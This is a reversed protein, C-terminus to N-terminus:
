FLGGGGTEDRYWFTYRRSSRWRVDNANAGLTTVWSFFSSLESNRHATVWSASRETSGSRNMRLVVRWRGQRVSSLSHAWTDSRAIWERRGGLWDSNTGHGAGICSERVSCKVPRAVPYDLIQSGYGTAVALRNLFARASEAPWNRRASTGMGARVGRRPTITGRRRASNGGATDYHALGYLWLGDKGVAVHDPLFETAAAHRRDVRASRLCSAFDRDLHEM